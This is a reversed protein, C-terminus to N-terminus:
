PVAQFGPSFVYILRMISQKQKGDEERRQVHNMAEEAGWVLMERSRIEMTSYIAGGVLLGVLLFGWWWYRSFFTQNECDFDIGARVLESQHTFDSLVM